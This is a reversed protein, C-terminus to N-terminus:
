GFAVVRVNALYVLYRDKIQEASTLSLLRTALSIFTSLAQSSEWNEKVRQSAKHLSGLLADAFNEDDAIEHGARLINGNSSPGAQYISQLIMLGTEVKKFDVSPVSLQLLIEAV